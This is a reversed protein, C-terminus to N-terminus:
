SSLPTLNRKSGEIKHLEPTRFRQEFADLFAFIGYIEQLQHQSDKFNKVFALIM